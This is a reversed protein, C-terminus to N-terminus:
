KKIARLFERKPPPAPLRTCLCGFRELLRKLKESASYTVLVGGSILTKCLNQIFGEEWLEPNTERRFPDFYLCDVEEPLPIKTADGIIMLLSFGPALPFPKKTLVLRPYLDLLRDWLGPYEMFTQHNLLALDDLSLPDRECAIYLIQPKENQCSLTEAHSLFAKGWADLTMALNWATGFGIEFLLIRHKKKAREIVGSGEVFIRRAEQGAGGRSRYIDRYLAHEYTLSGDATPLLRLPKTPSPTTTFVM